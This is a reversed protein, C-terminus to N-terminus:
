ESMEASNIMMDAGDAIVITGRLHGSVVLWLFIGCGTDCLPLAGAPDVQSRDEADIPLWTDRPMERYPFPSRVRALPDPSHRTFLGLMHELLFDGREHDLGFTLLQARFTTPLKLGLELEFAEVEAVSYERKAV